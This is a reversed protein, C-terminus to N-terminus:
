DTSNIIRSFDSAMLSAGGVLAGDVNKINIINNCNNVNVSGGYVIKIKSAVNETKIEGVHDRIITHVAQIEDFSPTLGSGIAWIPEYAIITNKNNATVPLSHSLQKKIIGSAQGEKKQLLSEGICIITNLDCRHAALAKKQVLENTEFGDIRRESHGVIVHTVGLDRLMHPSIEGTHAGFEQHHCNQSGIKIRCGEVIKLCDRLLTTPPCVIVECLDENILTKLLHIQELSSVTGNMKWNGAVLKKRQDTM